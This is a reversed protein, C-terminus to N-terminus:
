PDLAEKLWSIPHRVPLPRGAAALGAALWLRCGTNTTAVADAGTDLIARVAADRLPGAVQPHDAFHSGAAGCCGAGAPVEIVTLGPIAALAQRVARGGDLNRQTCPTWLAITGSRARLTPSTAELRRRVEDLVDDVPLAAGLSRRWDPLCGSAFALARDARTPAIRARAADALQGGGTADGAHRALAGCCTGDDLVAVRAGLRELVMRADDLTDREVASGVCGALLALDARAAVARSSRRVRAPAPGAASVELLAGLRPDIRAIPGALGVRAALRGLRLLAAMLRPRRALARLWRRFRPERAQVEPLARTADLLEGYRVGAPCVRECTGCALCDDLQGFLAEDTPRGEALARALRIRGRPSEGERRAVQYTPCHPLCAGCQVCQDALAAVRARAPDAPMPRLLPAIPDM